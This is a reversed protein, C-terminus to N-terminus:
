LNKYISFFINNISNINSHIFFWVTINKKIKDFVSQGIGSVKMIDEIVEFKNEKRYEIIAKAKSEGIGTLTLLEELSATNINILYDISESEKSVKSESSYFSSSNYEYSNTYSEKVCVENIDNDCICEEKKNSEEKKKKFEELELNTYIVIVMEDKLKKSLNIEKTNANKNIGGALKIVDDVISGEKLSYVGPKSVAGKIDVRIMKLEEETEENEEEVNDSLLAAQENNNVSINQKTYKKYIIVLLLIFLLLICIIRLIIIKNKNIFSLVKEKLNNINM